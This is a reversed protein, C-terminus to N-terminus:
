VAPEAVRDVDDPTPAPDISVQANGAARASRVSMAVNALLVLTLAFEAALFATAWRRRAVGGSSRGGDKLVEGAPRHVLHLAPALGFLLVSACSVGALVTLVRADFSFDFLSAVEAPVLSQLLRLGVFAFGLGVMTGLMALAASEVLLQRVLRGRTAGLSMRVAVERDRAAARMLLLNAVNACAILFVLAGASIFALWVTDTM